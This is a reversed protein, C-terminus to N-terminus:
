GGVNDTAEERPVVVMPVQLVRLMKAATTGLFIRRPQGLRSSGVLILDGDHWELLNVASEVSVGDVAVASVPFEAPLAARAADLTKAAHDLAHRRVEDDAARGGRIEDLAVLSALRLPVDAAKSLAVATDLLQEAGPRTGVAATIERIKAVASHRFGRPALAVPVPASHLLENVVSGLTLGGILGGGSGGVVIVDAALRTAEAIIGEAFSEHFSAHKTVEVDAPVMAAAESLWEQAQAELVEDYGASSVLTAAIRDDPLVMVLDLGAGFSRALRVGLAVADAGGATAIYAVVIRM